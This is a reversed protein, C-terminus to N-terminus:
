SHTSKFVALLSCCRTYFTLNKHAPCHASFVIFMSLYFSFASHAPYIWHLAREKWLPAVCILLPLCTHFTLNKHVSLVISVISALHETRQVHRACLKEKWLLHCQFLTGFNLVLINFHKFTTRPLTKLFNLSIM